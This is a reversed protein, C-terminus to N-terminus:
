NITQWENIDIEPDDSEEVDTDTNASPSGVDQAGGVDQWVDYNANADVTSASWATRRSESLLNDDLSILPMSPKDPTPQRKLGPLRDRISQEHVPKVTNDPSRRVAPKVGKRTLGINSQGAPLPQVLTRNQDRLALAQNAEDLRGANSTLVESETGSLIPVDLRTLEQRGNRVNVRPSILFLREIRQSQKRNSRFLAGLAPIDGLLPVKSTTNSTVERVLGGILLSEGVNMLAQTNISSREVVPIQDVTRDTASGDSVSVLLKIHAKDPGDVVHPTVRLTTGVSVNFLDVEEQGAVRVFFTSTTDLLAEVNSLTIVHPKSVIRAAGQTELARVRSIFESEDGLVLSVIGGRGSSSSGNLESQLSQDSTVNGQGVLAEFDNGQARWNVGLERLRDTNMDIITAEIEVMEPEVDLSRVLAEYGAMRGPQDRIIIANQRADAVIRTSGTNKRTSNQHTNVREISDDSSREGKGVSQLGQGRLGPETPSLQQRALVPPAAIAGPEILRRLLSAVGPIVVEQGGVVMTVDDAWAYRLSFVRYTDSLPSSRSGQQLVNGLEEIQEVFRQTGTVVLGASSVEVLNDDNILNMSTANGVVQHGVKGPMYVVKHIIDNAPYVFAVAGDYYLTLQFSTMLDEFVARASKNFDGNVSGRISEDIQVPVGVRSFLDKIFQGIPQDRPKLSVAQELGPVDGAQGPHPILLALLLILLGPTSSWVSRAPHIMRINM